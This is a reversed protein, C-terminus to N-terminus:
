ILSRSYSRFRTRDGFESQVVTKLTYFSFFFILFYLAVPSTSVIKSDINFTVDQECTPFVVYTAQFVQSRWSCIPRTSVSASARTSRPTRLSCATWATCCSCRRVTGPLSPSCATWWLTTCAGAAPWSSGTATRIAKVFLCITM